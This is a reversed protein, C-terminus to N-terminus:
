GLSDVLDLFSSVDAEGLCSTWCLKLSLEKSWWWNSTGWAKSVEEIERKGCKGIYVFSLKEESRGAARTGLAEIGNFNWVRLPALCSGLSPDM